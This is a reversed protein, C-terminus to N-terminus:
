GEVIKKIRTVTTELDGTLKQTWEEIFKVREPETLGAVIQRIGATARGMHFHHTLVAGGEHEAVDFGWISEQDTLAHSLMMWQFTEGPEAAVIRCETYWVGRILPAWGVVEPQRLNKGRFVTGVTAPPGGIWEGGLCEPSWEGSRPLDSVLAYVQDPTAAIGISARVTFLPTEDVISTM